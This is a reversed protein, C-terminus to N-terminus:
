FGTSIVLHTEKVMEEVQARLTCDRVTSQGSIYGASPM